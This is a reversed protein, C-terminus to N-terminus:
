FLGTEGKFSLSLIFFVRTEGPFPLEFQISQCAL